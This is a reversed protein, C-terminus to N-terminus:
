TEEITIHKRGINAMFCERIAEDEEKSWVHRNSRGEQSESEGPQEKPTKDNETEDNSPSLSGQFIIQLSESTKAANKRKQRILYFKDATKPNHSMLDALNNKLHAHDSHVASVAAKRFSTASVHEAKGTSRQWFSNIQATIMSSTMAKASWSVFVRDENERTVGTLRHHMFSVFALLWKQVSSSLVVTAPGHYKMTKHKLVDVVLQNGENKAKRLEGLTM